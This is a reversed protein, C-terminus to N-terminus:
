FVRGVHILSAGAINQGEATSCVEEPLTVM